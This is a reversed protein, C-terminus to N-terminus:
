SSAIKKIRPVTGCEPCRDPTARLDYGCVICKNARELRAERRVRKIVVVAPTLFFVFLLWDPVLIADAAQTGPGNAFQQLNFFFGMRRAYSNGLDDFDSPKSPRAVYRLRQPDSQEWMQQGAYYPGIQQFLLNFPGYFAYITGRDSSIGCGNWRWGSAFQYTISDNVWYSRVGLAAVMLCLAISLGALGNALWRRFRKM